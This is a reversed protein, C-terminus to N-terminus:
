APAHRDEVPLSPLHSQRPDVASLRVRPPRQNIGPLAGQQVDGQQAALTLADVDSGDLRLQRFRKM